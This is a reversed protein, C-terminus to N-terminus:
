GSTPLPTAGTGAHRGTMGFAELGEVVDSLMTIGKTQACMVARWVEISRIADGKGAILNQARRGVFIERDNRVAEHGVVNM